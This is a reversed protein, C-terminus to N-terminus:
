EIPDGQEYRIYGCFCGLVGDKNPHEVLRKFCLPCLNETQGWPNSENNPGKQLLEERVAHAAEVASLATTMARNKISEIIHDPPVGARKATDNVIDLIEAMRQAERLSVGNLRLLEKM